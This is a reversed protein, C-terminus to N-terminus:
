DTRRVTVLGMGPLKAESALRLVERVERYPLRGDARLVLAASPRDLSGPSMEAFRTALRDTFTGRPWHEGGIDLNGEADLVLTLQTVPRDLEEPASTRPLEIARTENLLPTVIMFIVLLVLCVDVLPTINIESRVTSVAFRDRLNM